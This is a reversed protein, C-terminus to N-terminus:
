RVPTARLAAKGAKEYAEFEVDRCKHKAMLEDRNKLLKDRFKEFSVDGGEGTKMRIAVFKEFVTQAVLEFQAAGDVAPVTVGMRDRVDDPLPAVNTREEDEDREGASDYLSDSLAVGPTTEVRDFRQEEGGGAGSPGTPRKKPGSLTEGFMTDLTMGSGGAGSAGGTVGADGGATVSSTVSSTVGAGASGGMTPAPRPTSTESAAREPMAMLLQSLQRQSADGAMQARVNQAAAGSKLRQSLKYLGNALEAFKGRLSGEPPSLNLNGENLSQVASLSYDLQKNVRGAALMGLVFVILFVGFAGAGVVPIMADAAQVLEATPAAVLIRLGALLPPAGEPAVFRARYTQVQLVAGALGNVMPGMGFDEGAAKAFVAGVYGSDVTSGVLADGTALGVEGRAHLAFDRALAEDRARLLVVYGGCSGAKGVCAGVGAFEYGKAGAMVDFWPSSQAAAPLAVAMREGAAVETAKGPAVVYEAIAAGKGDLVLARGAFGASELLSGFSRANGGGALRARVREEVPAVAVADGGEGAFAAVLGSREVLTEAVFRDHQGLEAAYRVVAEGTKVLSADLEGARRNVFGFVAALLAAAGLM